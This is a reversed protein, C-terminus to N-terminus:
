NLERFSVPGANELGANKTMCTVTGYKETMCKEVMSIQDRM